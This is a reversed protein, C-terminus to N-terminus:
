EGCAYELTHEKTENTRLQYEIWAVAMECATRLLDDTVFTKEKNQKDVVTEIGVSCPNFNPKLFQFGLFRWKCAIPSL